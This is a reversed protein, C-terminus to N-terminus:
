RCGVIELFQVVLRYTLGWLITEGPPLVRIAPRVLTSGAFRVEAEIHREPACLTAVPVWFARRVEDSMTLPGPQALGYVFCSVRVPLHAGAIDALRGLYRARGLDLGIEEQTERVAALQENRDAAEVKGGPFGLDGSWPDGDHAAREIFLVEPEASVGRMILAVAAHTRFDGRLPLSRLEGLLRQIDDFSPTASKM